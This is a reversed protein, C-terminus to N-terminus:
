YIIYVINQQYHMGWIETTDWWTKKGNTKQGKNSYRTQYVCRCYLLANLKDICKATVIHLTNWLYRDTQRKVLKNVEADQM